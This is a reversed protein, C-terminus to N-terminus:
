LSAFFCEIDDKCVTDKPYTKLFISLKGALNSMAASGKDLMSRDRLIAEVIPRNKVQYDDPEPEWFVPEDSYFDNLIESCKDCRCLLNRWNEPLFWNM